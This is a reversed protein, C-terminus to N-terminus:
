ATQARKVIEAEDLRLREGLLERSMLVGEESEENGGGDEWGM